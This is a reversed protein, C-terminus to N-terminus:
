PASSRMRFFLAMMLIEIGFLPLLSKAGTLSFIDLGRNNMLGGGLVNPLCIDYIVSGNYIPIMKGEFVMELYAALGTEASAAILLNQFLSVAASAFLVPALRIPLFALPLAFLPLIPIIHRPTFSVGGWWMYYGSIVLLYVLISVLSFALEPLFRTQRAMFYYGVVGLLLIPCQWFIGFTPHLTQYYFVLLDPAGIGMLNAAHAEKFTEDAEHLYGLALPTGYISLNYLALLAVPIAIGSLLSAYIGMNWHQGISYLTFIIYVILTLILILTPYETIVAFGMLFGSLFVLAPRAAAAGRINFWIAFALFYLVAALTHGYFATAYKFLPTGLCIGMTVLFAVWKGGNLRRVLLYLVPALLASPFGIAWFTIWERFLRPTLRIDSKYYIWRLPYYVATGLVSAGIAKDSYYHGDYYAKDNTYLEANHYSDIELRGEDVVAKVLALRSNINVDRESSIYGYAVLAIFFIIVAERIYTSNGIHKMLLSEVRKGTPVDIRVDPSAHNGRIAKFFGIQAGMRVEISVRNKM